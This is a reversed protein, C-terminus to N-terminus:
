SRVCLGNGRAQGARAEVMGAAAGAVALAATVAAAAAPLVDIAQRDVAETAGRTAAAVATM